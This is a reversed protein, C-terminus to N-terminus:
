ERRWTWRSREGRVAFNTVALNGIVALSDFDPWRGGVTVDFVLPEDLTVLAFGRAVNSDTLFPRATEPDFVGRIHGHYNKTADDKRQRENGSRTKASAVVLDPLRWVLNSYSFHTRAADIAVNMAVGNTLALEGNLRVTPRVEGNWDPAANTWAPLILSGGISLAPPQTWRFDALRRADKGGAIWSIASLDFCSSNTFDLERTAVNLKLDAALRGTGLAISLNTVALEPASWFGGCAVSDADFKETKLRRLRASWDLRYPQANTWFGWAPDCKAPASAPATLNATLQLDRANFWPTRAAPVAVKLRVIFSHLDRADGNLTLNLQPTGVFHIRGLMESFKEIQSQTVLHGATKGGHFMEWNRLESAHSIEGYVNLKAGAFDAQFHDLTWIDNTQFRLTTQINDLQLRNTPSLTWVLRGERLFIGDVQVQRHLFARFDLQLRAEALTLVPGTDMGIRVNEAVIGRTFRLRVRSFELDIGRERLTTVLRTKLFDPLGVQNLWIVACLAALIALWM